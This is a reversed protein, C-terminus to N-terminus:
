CFLTDSLKWSPCLAMPLSLVWFILNRNLVVRVGFNCPLSGTCAPCAGTSQSYSTSSDSGQVEQLSQIPGLQVGLAQVGGLGGIILLDLQLSASALKAQMSPM